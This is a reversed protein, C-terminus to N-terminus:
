AAMPCGLPAADVLTALCSEVLTPMSAAYASRSSVVMNVQDCARSILLLAPAVRYPGYRDPAAQNSAISNFFGIRSPKSANPDYFQIGPKGLPKEPETAAVAFGVPHGTLELVPIASVSAGAGPRARFIMWMSM